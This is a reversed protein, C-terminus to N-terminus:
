KSRPQDKLLTISLHMEGSNDFFCCGKCDSVVFTLFDGESLHLDIYKDRSAEEAQQHTDYHTWSGLEFDWSGPGPYEQQCPATWSIPRNKYILLKTLWGWWEPHSPQSGPPCIEYAGSLIMLRYTGSKPAVYTSGREELASVFLEEQSSASAPLRDTEKSSVSIEDLGLRHLLNKYLDTRKKEVELNFGLKRGILTNEILSVEEDDLSIERNTSGYHLKRPKWYYIYPGLRSCALPIGRVKISGMAKDCPTEAKRIILQYDKVLIQFDERFLTQFVDLAFTPRMETPLKYDWNYDDFILIGGDKLLDWSLIADMLVSRSTHDGDIYILDFGNLSLDRLKQQSSGKIVKINPSRGSRRTNERFVKEPDNSGFKDFTDIAVARSSPHTLINDMVWFFSRGEYVGVELYALNPKGKMNSLVRTWNPINQSFWDSSFTYKRDPKVAPAASLVRATTCLCAILCIMMVM